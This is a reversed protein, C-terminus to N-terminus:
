ISPKVDEEFSNLIFKLNTFIKRPVIWNIKKKQILYWILLSANKINADLQIKNLSYLIKLITNIIHFLIIVVCNKNDITGICFKKHSFSVNEITRKVYEIENYSTLIPSDNPINDSIPAFTQYYFFSLEKNFFDNKLRFIVNYLNDINNEINYITVKKNIYKEIIKKILKSLSFFQEKTYSPFDKILSHYEETEYLDEVIKILNDDDIEGNSIMRVLLITNFYNYDIIIINSHIETEELLALLLSLCSESLWDKSDWKNISKIDDTKQEVLNVLRYLNEQPGSIASVINFDYNIDTNGDNNILFSHISYKMEEKRRNVM